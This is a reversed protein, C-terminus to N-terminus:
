RAKSREHSKRKVDAFFAKGAKPSLTDRSSKRAGQNLELLELFRQYLRQDEIELERRRQVISRIESITTEM